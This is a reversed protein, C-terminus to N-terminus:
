QYKLLKDILIDLQTKTHNANIVIRNMIKHISPYQFSTIIINNNLLYIAITEDDVFFVPYNNSVNIKPYKYLSNFVFQCNNKLKQLQTQYFEQSALFCDLFAPNMGASGGFLDLTKIQAIFGKTGTIYGGSVGFSKGLSAVTVIKLNEKKSIQSVIGNGTKGLIGISHSEDILLTIEINKPIDDLFNFSFPQIELAPVADALITIKQHKKIEDTIKDDMFFPLAKKHKIAPHTKPLYFFADTTQELVQLALQGALTGSSTTIVDDVELFSCLFSETKDYISLKINSARSSGYSTGWMTISKALQQQFKPHSAVGLYSTGSFYLYEKQDITVKTDPLNHTRM